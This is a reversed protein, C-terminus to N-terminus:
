SADVVPRLIPLNICPAITIDKSVPFQAASVFTLIHACALVVHPDFRVSVGTADGTCRVRSLLFVWSTKGNKEVGGGVGTFITASLV